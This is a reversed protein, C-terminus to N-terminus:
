KTYISHCSRCSVYRVFKEKLQGIEKKALHLTRPFKAALRALQNIGLWESVLRLFHAFFSLFLSIASDSVRSLSQWLFLFLLFARIAKQEGSQIRADDGEDVDDEDVEELEELEEVVEGFIFEVDDDDQLLVFQIAKGSYM